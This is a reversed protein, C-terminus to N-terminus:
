HNPYNGWRASKKGWLTPWLVGMDISGNEMNLFSERAARPRASRAVGSRVEALVVQTSRELARERPLLPASTVVSWVNKWFAYWSNGDGVPNKPGVVWAARLCHCLSCPMWDVPTVPGRVRAASAHEEEAAVAWVNVGWVVGVKVACVVLEDCDVPEGSLEERMWVRRACIAVRWACIAAMVPPVDSACVLGEVLEPCAM